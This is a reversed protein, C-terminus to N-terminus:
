FFSQYDGGGGGGGSGSMGKLLLILQVIFVTALLVLTAIIMAKYHHIDDLNEAIDTVLKGMEYGGLEVERMIVFEDEYWETLEYTTFTHAEIHGRNSLAVLFTREERVFTQTKIVGFSTVRQVLNWRDHVEDWCYIVFYTDHVSPTSETLGPYDGYSISLCTHGAFDFLHQHTGVHTTRVVPLAQARHTNWFLRYTAIGETTLAVLYDWNTSVFHDLYNINDFSLNDIVEADYFGNGTSGEGNYTWWRQPVGVTSLSALAGTTTWTPTAYSTDLYLWEGLNNEFVL